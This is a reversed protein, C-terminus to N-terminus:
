RKFIFRARNQTRIRRRLANLIFITVWAISYLGLITGFNLAMISQISAAFSSSASTSATTIAAIVISVVLVLLANNSIRDYRLRVRMQWGVIIALAVIIVIRLFDYHFGLFQAINHPFDGM